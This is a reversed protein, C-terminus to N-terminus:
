SPVVVDDGEAIDGAVEVWGDAFEGIEVATYATSGDSEAVEVAFGGEVLAVLASVPVALVNTALMDIVGVKVEGPPQGAPADLTLRVKFKQEGFPDQSQVAEISEVAAPYRSGDALTVEITPDGEFARKKRASVEASVFLSPETIEIVGGAAQEGIRPVTAVRLSEYPLFLLQSAGIRGTADIGRDDQWQKVAARLVTDFEGDIDYAADLYGIGRLYTQLQEVDVGKSGRQLTRYMPVDGQTWYTPQENVKYVVDDSTLIADPEPVWTVTGFAEGPLSFVDGYGVTGAFEESQQLDRRVVTATQREAPEATVTAEAPSDGTSVFWVGAVLLGAVGIASLVWTAIRKM